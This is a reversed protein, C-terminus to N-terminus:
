DTIKNKELIEEVRKRIERMAKVAETATKPMEEGTPLTSTDEPFLTDMVKDVDDVELAQLLMRTVIKMDPITGAPMQGNLTTASVIANVRKDFEHQTLEPFKIHILRRTDNEGEPLNSLTLRGHKLANDIDFQFLTNFIDYWLSQRSQFKLEMPREMITSTALNGTSPDGFYHEYIGLAACVMLLLRRADDMSTTAGATKIPNLQFGETMSAFDGIKNESGSTKVKAGATKAGAKSKSVVTWAFRAYSKVITSWNELFEKYAKAWDLASYVESIGFQMKGLKNVAVHYIYVDNVIEYSNYGTDSIVQTENTNPLPFRYDRYLVKKIINKGASYERVYFWTEKRDEPNIIKAPIEDFPIMRILVSEKGPFLAFFLNAYIQLENEKEELGQQEKLEEKNKTLFNQVELDVTKDEAEISVGGGFVYSTQIKVARGILPNKIFYLLATKCIITLASRSFETDTGVGAITMWGLSEGELEEIREKLLETEQAIASLEEIKKVNEKFIKIPNKM